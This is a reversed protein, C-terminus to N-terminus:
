LLVNTQEFTWFVRAHSQHLNRTAFLATFAGGCKLTIPISYVASWALAPEETM